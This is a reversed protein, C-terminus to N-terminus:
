KGTLDAIVLDANFVVEDNGSYLGGVYSEGTDGDFLVQENANHVEVAFGMGTLIPELGALQDLDSILAVTKRPMEYIRYEFTDNSTNTLTFSAQGAQGRPVHIVVDRTSPTVAVQRVSIDTGVQDGGSVHVATPDRKEHAQPLARVQYDGDTLGYIAYHGSADTTVKGSLTGWYEVREGALGNGVSDTLTGTIAHRPAVPLSFTLDFPGYSANGVRVTFPVEGSVGAGLSVTFTDSNETSQGSLMSPWAGTADVITVGGTATSLHGTPNLFLASGEVTLTFSLDVTEGPEALHDGDGTVDDIVRLGVLVPAPAPNVHLVVPLRLNNRDETIYVNAKYTGAVLHKGANFLLDVDSSVGPGLTLSVPNPKLWFPQIAQFAGDLDLHGGSKTVASLRADKRSGELLARKLMAPTADPFISLLLAAAGCVHPSAVSTGDLAAYDPLIGTLFDERFYTSMIQVGPAALDVSEAGFNSFAALQDNHDAAAVSIINGLNYTAPYSPFALDNDQGANSAACVFLHGKAGAMAIGAREIGSFELGGYSHNSVRAGNDVAYELSKIASATDIILIPFGFFSEVRSIKCIMLSTEWNMGTVGEDNNGVAGVTGAVHTGHETGDVPFLFGTDPNPDNDLAGFDYGHIDDVYGNEDDDNVAFPYDNTDDDLNGFVGDFGALPIGNTNYDARMVEEDLFDIGTEDVLGDGDNDIGDTVNSEVSELADGDDDFLAIGPAGDAPAAEGIVELPNVWLNAELDPHMLLTGTDHISVTVTRSGISRDWLAEAGADAGLSGGTQRANELGWQASFQPDNPTKTLE